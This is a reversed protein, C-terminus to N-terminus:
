RLVAVLFAAYGGLLGLGVPRSIRGRRASSALLVLPLLAAAVAAPLVPGAPLPRILASVGLTATANYTASGLVGALALDPLGRRAAAWVLALLEATTALAVLTLGVASDTLHWAAVVRQAGAVALRGGAAMAAVGALVLLVAAVSPVGAPDEDLEAAEGIAPPRRERWWIAALAAGYGALLVGGGARGVRGTCLLGTALAGAAGSALAYPRIRPGFPVPRVLAALGLVLTLMTLNAGIADGVAIGPRGAASAFAATTLEEPEAGALVLGVALASVGLRRGAGAAHEAFLEAGGALLAASALLLAVGVM